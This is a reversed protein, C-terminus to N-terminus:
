LLLTLLKDLDETGGYPPLLLAAPGEGDNGPLLEIIAAPVGGALPIGGADLAAEELRVYGLLVQDLYNHSNYPFMLQLRELTKNEIQLGRGEVAVM